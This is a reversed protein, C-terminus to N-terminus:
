HIFSFVYKVAIQNFLPAPNPNKNCRFESLFCQLANVLPMSTPEKLNIIAAPVEVKKENVVVTGKNIILQREETVKEQWTFLSHTHMLCQMTSNYFCTNGLNQLGKAPKPREEDITMRFGTFWFPFCHYMSYFQCFLSHCCSYANM